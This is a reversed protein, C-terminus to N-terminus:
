DAYQSQPKLRWKASEKQTTRLAAQMSSFVRRFLAKGALNGRFHHLRAM